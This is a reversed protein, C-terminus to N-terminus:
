KKGNQNSSVKTKTEGHAVDPETDVFDPSNADRFGRQQSPYHRKDRGDQKWRARDRKEHKDGRHLKDYRGHLAGARDHRFPSRSRTRSRRDRDADSRDIDGYVVRHRRSDGHAQREEYHVKFRRSDHRDRDAHYDDERRRKEGRPSKARYPSRSRSRYRGYRDDLSAGSSNSAPTKHRSNRDVSTGNAAPRATTAKENETEIIEGESESQSSM